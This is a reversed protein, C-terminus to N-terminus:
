VSDGDSAPVGLTADGTAGGAINHV